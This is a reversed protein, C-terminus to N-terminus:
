ELKFHSMLWVHYKTSSRKSCSKSLASDSGHHSSTENYIHTQAHSHRCANCPYYLHKQNQEYPKTCANIRTCLKYIPRFALQSHRTHSLSHNFVHVSACSLSPDLSSSNFTCFGKFMPEDQHIIVARLCKSAPALNKLQLRHEDLVQHLFSFGLLM